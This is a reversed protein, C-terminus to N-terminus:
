LKHKLKGDLDEEHCRNPSLQISFAAIQFQEPKELIEQFLSLKQQGVGQFSWNEMCDRKSGLGAIQSCDRLELVFSVAILELDIM